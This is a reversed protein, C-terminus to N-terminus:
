TVVLKLILLVLKLSTVSDVNFYLIDGAAVAISLGTEQSKVGNSISFTDILGGVVPPIAFTGKWVSVAISGTTVDVSLLRAETITGAWPIQVGGALGIQIVGGGGTFNFNIYHVDGTHTHKKSIADAVNAHTLGGDKISKGTTGDYETMNSNVSSAPGEVSNPVEIIMNAVGATCYHGHAQNQIGSSTVIFIGLLVQQASALEPPIPQLNELFDTPLTPTDESGEIRKLTDDSCDFVVLDYRHKGAGAAPISTLSGGAYPIPTNGGRYTGSAVAIATASSRSPVMGSIVGYGSAAVRAAQFFVSHARLRDGKRPFLITAM